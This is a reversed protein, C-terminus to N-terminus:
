GVHGCRGKRCLRGPTNRLMQRLADTFPFVPEPKLRRLEAGPLVPDLHRHRVTEDGVPDVAMEVVLQELRRLGLEPLPRRHLHPDIRLLALRLVGLAAVLLRLCRRLARLRRGHPRPSGPPRRRPGAPRGACFCRATGGRGQPVFQVVEDDAGGVLQGVGRGAPQDVLRLGPHMRQEDM